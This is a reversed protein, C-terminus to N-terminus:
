AKPDFAYALVPTIDHPAWALAGDTGVTCTPGVMWVKAPTPLPAIPPLQKIAANLADKVYPGEAWVGGAVVAIYRNM